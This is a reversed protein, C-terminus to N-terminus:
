SETWLEMSMHKELSVTGNDDTKRLIFPINLGLILAVIDGGEIRPPGLGLRGGETVFSRRGHSILRTMSFYDLLINRDVPVKIKHNFLGDYVQQFRSSARV